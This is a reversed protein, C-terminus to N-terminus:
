TFNITDRIRLHFFDQGEQARIVFESRIKLLEQSIVKTYTAPSKATIKFCRLQIPFLGKLSCFLLSHGYRLISIQPPARFVLVSVIGNIESGIFSIVWM